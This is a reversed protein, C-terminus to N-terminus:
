IDEENMMTERFADIQKNFFIKKIRAYFNKEIEM